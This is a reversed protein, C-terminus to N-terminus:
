QVLEVKINQDDYHHVVLVGNETITYTESGQIPTIGEGLTKYAKIFGVDVGSTTGEPKETGNKTAVAYHRYRIPGCEDSESHQTNNLISVKVVQGTTVNYGTAAACIHKYWKNNEAYFFGQANSWIPTMEGGIEFIATYIKASAGVTITRTANTNGDNWRVFSYGSSPTASITVQSGEAYSGSGTTTGGGSPSAVVNISVKNISPDVKGVAVASFDAGKIILIKGM